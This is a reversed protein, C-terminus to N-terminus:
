AAFQAIANECPPVEAFDISVLHGRGFMEVIAAVKGKDEGMYTAQFSTYPGCQVTFTDGPQYGTSLDGAQARMIRERDRIAEIVPDPVSVPNDQLNVILCRSAVGRCYNIQGYADTAPDFRVFLYRPFLPRSLQQVKGAHTRKVLHVPLFAQFGKEAVAVSATVERGTKTRAVFWAATM